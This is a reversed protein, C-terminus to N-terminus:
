EVYYLGKMSFVLRGAGAKWSKGVITQKGGKKEFVELIELAIDRTAHHASAFRYILWFHDPSDFIKQLPLFDNEPVLMDGAWQLVREEAQLNEVTTLITKKVGPWRQEILPIVENRLFNRRYDSELNTSDVIYGEGKESLYTEIDARCVHLLPRILVGTDALMARLGTVGSGRFLNLLLTEVNDDANHAVAIRDAGTASMIRRFEGYRLDRCAMETSINRGCRYKEVDFDIVTLPFSHKECLAEVAHQDRMSEEGRLHFNCHVALVEAGSAKLALLLATSDAGGSIGAVIKTVGSKELIKRVSNEIFFSIGRKRKM